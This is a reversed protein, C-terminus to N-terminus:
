KILNIKQSLMIKFDFNKSNLITPKHTAHWRPDLPDIRMTGEHTNRPGPIKEWPIKRVFKKRTPIKHTCYNKRTPIKHTYFNKNLINRPGLKKKGRSIKQNLFKWKKARSLTVSLLLLYIYRLGRIRNWISKLM